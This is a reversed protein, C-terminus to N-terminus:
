ITVFYKSHCILDRLVQLQLMNRDAEAKVQNTRKMYNRLSVFKHCLSSIKTNNDISKNRSIDEIERVVASCEEIWKRTSMNSNTFHDDNINNVNSPQNGLSADCQVSPKNKRKRKRPM